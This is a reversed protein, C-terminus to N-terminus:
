LQQEDKVGYYELVTIFAKQLKDVYAAEEDADRSYFPITPPKRFYSLHDRLEHIVIAEMAEVPIEVKM